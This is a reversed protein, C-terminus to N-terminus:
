SVLVLGSSLFYAGLALLLLACFALVGRYVFGSMLHRGSTLLLALLSLWVIDSLIHGTYISAVGAAGHDLGQQVLLTGVTAWWVIVGPSSLTVLGAAVGLVLATSPRPRDSAALSRMWRQRWSGDYTAAGPGNALAPALAPVEKPLAGITHVGMWLLFLGGVIGIGGNVSDNDLFRSLGLALGIVLVLDVLSHGVALLPGAWFGRRMTERVALTTLPGPMLAGTFGVGFSTVFLAALAYEPVNETDCRARHNTLAFGAQRYAPRYGKASPPGGAIM